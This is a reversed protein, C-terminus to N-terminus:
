TDFPYRFSQKRHFSVSLGPKESRGKLEGGKKEPNGIRSLEKHSPDKEPRNREM